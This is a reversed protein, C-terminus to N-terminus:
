KEDEASCIKRSFNSVKPAFFFSVQVEQETEETLVSGTGKVYTGYRCSFHLM